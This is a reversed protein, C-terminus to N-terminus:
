TMIVGSPRGVVCVAPNRLPDFLGEITFLLFVELNACHFGKLRWMFMRALASPYPLNWCLWTIDNSRWLCHLRSIQNWVIIFRSGCLRVQFLRISCDSINLYPAIYKAGYPLRSRIEHFVCIHAMYINSQPFKDSLSQQNHISENESPVWIQYANTKKRNALTISKIGGLCFPLNDVKKYFLSIGFLFLNSMGGWFLFLYIFLYM